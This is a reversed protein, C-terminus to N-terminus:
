LNVTALCLTNPLLTATVAAANQMRRSVTALRPTNRIQKTRLTPIQRKTVAETATSTPPSRHRSRHTKEPTPHIDPQNEQQQRGQQSVPTRRRRQRGTSTKMQALPRQTAPTAPPLLPKRLAPEPPRMSAPKHGACCRPKRAIQHRTETAAANTAPDTRQQKKAFRERKERVTLPIGSAPNERLLHTKRSRRPSDCVRQISLCTWPSSLHRVLSVRNRLAPRAQAERNHPLQQHRRRRPALQPSKKRGQRLPLPTMRHAPRRDAEANRRDLAPVVPGPLLLIRHRHQHPVPPLIQAPLPRDRRRQRRHQFRLIPRMRRPRLLEVMLVKRHLHLLMGIETRHRGIRRQRPEHASTPQLALRAAPPRISWTRAVLHAAVLDGAAMLEPMTSTATLLINRLTQKENGQRFKRRIKAVYNQSTTKNRM